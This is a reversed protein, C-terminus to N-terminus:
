GYVGIASTVFRGLCISVQKLFWKEPEEKPFVSTLQYLHSLVLQNVQELTSHNELM